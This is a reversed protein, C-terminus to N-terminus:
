KTGGTGITQLTTEHKLYAHTRFPLEFFRECIPCYHLKFDLCKQIKDEFSYGELLKLEALKNIIDLKRIIKSM